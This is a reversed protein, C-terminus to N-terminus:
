DLLINSPKIDRHIGRIRSYVHLYVLGQTLGKIINFRKRWDLLLSKSSDRLYYDLSVKPMFEYILIREDGHICYGVIQIVNRHQLEGITRLENNFESFGQGSYLSLRKVAVQQGTEVIGKYVCGFGGQGLKNEESFNCTALKISAYSFKGKTSGHSPTITPRKFKRFFISFIHKNAHAAPNNSDSSHDSWTSGIDEDCTESEISVVGELEMIPNIVEHCGQFSSMEM